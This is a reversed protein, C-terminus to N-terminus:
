VFILLKLDSLLLLTKKMMLFYKEDGWTDAFHYCNYPYNRTTNFIGNIIIYVIITYIITTCTVKVIIIDIILIKLINKLM